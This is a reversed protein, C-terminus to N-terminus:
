RPVPRVASRNAATFDVAVPGVPSPGTNRGQVCLAAILDAGRPTEPFTSRWSSRFERGISGLPAEGDKGSLRTAKRSIIKERRHM